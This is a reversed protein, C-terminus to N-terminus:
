ERLDVWARVEAVTKALSSDPISDLYDAIRVGFGEGLDIRKFWGAGSKSASGLAKRMATEDKPPVTSWEDPNPSLDNLSIGLATALGGLVVTSGKEQLAYKTIELVGNWPLDAFVREEISSGDAWQVVVIGAARLDDASPSLQVDSDGLFAVPYALKAFQMAQTPSKTGGGASDTVAVVGQHALCCLSKKATWYEDLARVFGLETKGECVLVRSGLMAEPFTRVIAQMETGVDLVQTIGANSRVISINEAPVEVVAVPSHTTMIAGGMRPGDGNADTSLMHVLRRLRHPELGSEVEDILMVGGSKAAERQMAVSLLRRSGLGTRRLPVDGDHLAIGGLTVNVSQFDLHPKYQKAAPVGIDAALDQAKKAADCLATLKGPQFGERAARSAGALILAIGDAKDQGVETIRSLISGRRWSLHWDSSFGLRAVGLRERDRHSIPRGDPKRENFVTWKPELSDDVVLRISIAPSDGEQPEDHLGATESWGRLELGFQDEDLFESPLDGVTVVISIPKSTDTAYFDTDDFTPNWRPLLALEIADLVTSKTSDGPGVLCVFANRLKWDLKEIGRFHRVELHYIRM